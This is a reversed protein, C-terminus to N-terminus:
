CRLRQYTVRGGLFREHWRVVRLSSGGRCASGAAMEVSESYEWWAQACCGRAAPPRPGLRRM